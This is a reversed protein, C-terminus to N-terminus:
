EKLRRQELFAHLPEHRLKTFEMPRQPRMRRAWAHKTVRESICMLLSVCLSDTSNAVPQLGPRTVDDRRYEFSVGGSAVPALALPMVFWTATM